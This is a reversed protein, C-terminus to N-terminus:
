GPGEFWEAIAAAPPAPHRALHPGFTRPPAHKRLFPPDRAPLRASADSVQAVAGTDEDTPIVLVASEAEREDGGGQGMYCGDAAAASM